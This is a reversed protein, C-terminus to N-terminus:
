ERSVGSVLERWERRFSSVDYRYASNRIADPDWAQRYMREVANRLNRAGRSFLVGNEGEIVQHSTFGEDIGVVPNGSAMAEVPAIGFAEHSSNLVFADCAALLDRKRSESVYGLVEVNPGATERVADIEPGTGAIKLRHGTGSLAEVLEIVRKMPSLRGVHLLYGGDPGTRFGDVPVPPYIVRDATRDYYTRLRRGVTESPVVFEGIRAVTSVDHVRLLSRYLRAPWELLGPDDEDRGIGPGFLWRPPMNLLHVRRQHPSHVVAKTPEGATLVLDYRDPVEFAEYALLETVAGAPLRDLVGHGRSGAGFEIVEPGTGRISEPLEAAAAPTYVPADLVCALEVVYRELGGIARVPKFVICADVAGTM